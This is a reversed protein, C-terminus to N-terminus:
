LLAMWRPIRRHREQVMKMRRQATQAMPIAEMPGPRFRDGPHEILSQQRLALIRFRADLDPPLHFDIDTCERVLVAGTRARAIAADSYPRRRTRNGAHRQGKSM